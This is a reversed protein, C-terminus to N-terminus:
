AVSLHMVAFYSDVDVWVDDMSLGAKHAMQRFGDIHYKHSFETFIREGRAFGIQQGCISVTQELRSEIFIEIREM